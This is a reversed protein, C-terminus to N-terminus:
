GKLLKITKDLVRCLAEKEDRGNAQTVQMEALFWSENSSVSKWEDGDSFITITSALVGHDISIDDIKTIDVYADLAGYNKIYLRKDTLIFGEKASNFVTDDYLFILTEDRGMNRAYSYRANNLKKDPIDDFRYFKSIHGNDRCIREVSGKIDEKKIDVKPIFVYNSDSASIYCRYLDDRYVCSIIYFPSIFITCNEVSIEGNWSFDKVDDGPLTNYIEKGIFVEIENRKLEEYLSNFDDSLTLQKNNDSDFESYELLANEDVNSFAQKGFFLREDVTLDGSVGAFCSSIFSGSKHGSGFQYSTRYETRYETTKHSELFGTHHTVTEPVSENSGHGISATWEANYSGSFVAIPIYLLSCEKVSFFSNNSASMNIKKALEDLVKEKAKEETIYLPIVANVIQNTNGSKLKKIASVAVGETEALFSETFISDREVFDYVPNENLETFTRDSLTEVKESFYATLESKDRDPYRDYFGNAYSKAIALYLEPILYRFQSDKALDYSMMYYIFLPAKNPLIRAYKDQQKDIYGTIEERKLYSPNIYDGFINDAFETDYETIELGEKNIFYDSPCILECFYDYMWLVMEKRASYSEQIQGDIELSGEELSNDLRKGLAILKKFNEM